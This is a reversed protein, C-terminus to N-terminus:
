AQVGSSYEIGKWYKIMLEILLLLRPVRFLVPRRLYWLLHGITM